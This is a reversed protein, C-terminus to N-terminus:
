SCIIGQAAILLSKINQVPLEHNQFVEICETARNLANMWQDIQLLLTANELTATAMWVQNNDNLFIKYASDLSQLAQDAQKLGTHAVAEILLAQGEEFDRGQEVCLQRIQQCKERVDAFRRLQLLCESMYLSVNM